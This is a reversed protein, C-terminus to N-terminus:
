GRKLGELKELKNDIDNKLIENLDENLIKKLYKSIILMISEYLAEKEERKM